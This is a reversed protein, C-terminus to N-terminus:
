RGGGISSAPTSHRDHERARKRLELALSFALPIATGLCAAVVVDTPWHVGLVLRSLGVLVTWAFALVLAPVRAGPWLTGAVLAASMAFAAMVLTHGSPFSSGWYWQVEWLAPRERGVIVKLTLVVLAACVVSGAVLLAAARRRAALLLVTAAVTLSTLVTSSATFTITEFAPTLAAPVHERILLLVAKDIPRSEGNLADEAVMVAAAMLALLCMVAVRRRNFHESWPSRQRRLVLQLAFYMAAVSLMLQVLEEAAELLM